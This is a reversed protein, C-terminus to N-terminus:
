LDYFNGKSTMQQDDQNRATALQVCMLIRYIAFASHNQTPTFSFKLDVNQQQQQERATM